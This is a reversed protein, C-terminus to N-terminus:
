PQPEPFVIEGALLRATATGALQTRTALAYDALKGAAGNGKGEPFFNRALAAALIERGQSVGADYAAVRGYFVEAMKRAKKGVSIDGVGMERLSRDMDAFFEDILRQRFRADEGKLRDLALFM